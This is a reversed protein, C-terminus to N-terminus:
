VGAALPRSGRMGSQHMACDMGAFVARKKGRQFSARNKGNATFRESGRSRFGVSFTAPIRRRHGQPTLLFSVIDLPLTALRMEPRMESPRIRTLISDAPSFERRSVCQAKVVKQAKGVILEKLM